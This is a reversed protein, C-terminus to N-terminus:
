QSSLSNNNMQGRRIDMRCYFLHKNGLYIFYLERLFLWLLYRSHSMQRTCVGRWKEQIHTHTHTNNKVKGGKGKKKPFAGATNYSEGCGDGVRLGWM